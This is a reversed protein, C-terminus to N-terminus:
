VRRHEEREAEEAEVVECPAVAADDDDAGAVRGRDVPRQEGLHRDPYRTVEGDAKGRQAMETAATGRDEERRFDRVRTVHHPNGRQPGADPEGGGGLSRVGGKEEVIRRDAFRWRRAM